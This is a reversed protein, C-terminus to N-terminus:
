HLPMSIGGHSVVVTVGVMVTFGMSIQTVVLITGGREEVIHVQLVILAVTGTMTEIMRLSSCAM